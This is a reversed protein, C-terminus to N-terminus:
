NPTQIRLLHMMHRRRGSIVGVLHRGASVMRGRVLRPIVGILNGMSLRRRWLTLNRLPMRLVLELVLALLRRVRIRALM